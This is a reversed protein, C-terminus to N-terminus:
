CRVLHSRDHTALISEAIIQTFAVLQNGISVTFVAGENEGGTAIKRLDPSYIAALVNNHAKIPGLVIKGSEVNWVRTMGDYSGSIVREGDASWRLSRVIDPHGAWEAIAKESEVNWLRVAGDSSGSVITKGNPSLAICWVQAPNEHKLTSLLEATIADWIKVANEGGTAIKTMDPSYIVTSVYAHGRIPGLVTKGSEVNWVRATGDVSGSVVREGDASWCLSRVVTTHGAWKAIVEETEVNWLRVTGEISGSAITKGNPSLAICWVQAEDREDRWDDGIQAGSELDWRLLSRDHSCTIICRGDPPHVIGSVGGTHSRM